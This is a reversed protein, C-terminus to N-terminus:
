QSATDQIACRWLGDTIVHEFTTRLGDALPPVPYLSPLNALAEGRGGNFAMELATGLSLSAGEANKVALTSAGAASESFAFSTLTGAENSVSTYIISKNTKAGKEVSQPIYHGLM